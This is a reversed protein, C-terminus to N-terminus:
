QFVPMIERAFTRIMTFYSAEDDGFCRLNMADVGARRYRVLLEMVTDISGVLEYDNGRGLKAMATEDDGLYLPSQARIEMDVEDRGYERVLKAVLAIGEGILEPPGEPIWGDCTRALTRIPPEFLEPSGTRPNARIGGGMLIPIPAVRPFFSGNEFAVHEGRYGARGGPLIARLAELHERTYAAKERYPTQMIRFETPYDGSGVGLSLRGRSLAQLTIVQRALVRPDRLPLVLIATGLRITRTAAAAYALTTLSEYLNPEIAAHPAVLGSTRHGFWETDYSIHDHVLLTDFGLEEAEAALRDIHSVSALPGSNPLAIGFNM